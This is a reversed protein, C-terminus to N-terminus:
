VKTVMKKIAPYKEIDTRRRTFILYRDIDPTYWKKLDKGEYFHKIIEVDNKSENLIETREKSTIIFAENFGTVIGRFCKGYYYRITKNLKMKELILNDNESKFGWSGEKLSSQLVRVGDFLNIGNEPRSKSFIKIFSFKNELKPKQKRGRINYSLYWM